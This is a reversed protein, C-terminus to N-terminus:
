AWIVRDQASLKGGAGLHGLTLAGDLPGGAPDVVIVAHDLRAAETRFGEVLHDGAAAVGGTLAIRAPEGAARARAAVASRAAEQGAARLLDASATDGARATEGIAVAFEALLGARDNRTYFQGPWSAPPGFRRTAAELLARGREDVGDHTRLALELGHGGLWAGGGRDGFLHGWGDARAWEASWHGAEDPGPHAIAIAGTGLVTIAGGTGGLAGLYGTVADIAAVAPVGLESSIESLVEAPDEALSAIGTAGVGIGGVESFRESWIDAASRLLDRVVHLVTSGNPGIEIRPGAIQDIIRPVFGAGDAIGPGSVANGRHDAADGVGGLAARSGTGGIDIGLILSM